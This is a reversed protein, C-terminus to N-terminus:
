QQDGVLQAPALIIQQVVLQDRLSIISYILQALHTPDIKNPDDSYIKSLGADVLGPIINLIKPHRHPLLATIVDEQQQKANKYEIQYQEILPNPHETPYMISKSGINIITKNSYKWQEIIENLLDLQGTPHYANNIFIDVDQSERIISLRNSAESINFGNSRSFGLVTHGNTQFVEALAKGIGQLHGTIAVKM